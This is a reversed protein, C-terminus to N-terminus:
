REAGPDGAQPAVEGTWRALREEAADLCDREMALEAELDAIRRRTGRVFLRVGEVDVVEGPPRPRSTGGAASM